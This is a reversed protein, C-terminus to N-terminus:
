AAEKETEGEEVDLPVDPEPTGEQAVPPVPAPAAEQNVPPMPAPALEQNVPPVPEPAIPGIPGSDLEPEALWPNNEDPDTPDWGPYTSDGIKPASPKGLPGPDPSNYIEVAEIEWLHDYIWKADKVQLRICGHSAAQGLKDFEGPQLSGHDYWELYPVSHFLYDGDIQTSYMGKVGDVLGLWKWRNGTLEYKGLPTSGDLGSSCVMAIYPVTHEGNEDLTYVTVTNMECNVKVYYPAPTPEPEPEPAPAPTPEPEPEPKQTPAPETWPEPEPEPAPEPEPEPKPLPKEAPKAHQGVPLEPTVDKEKEAPTSMKPGCSCLLAMALLMGILKKTQKKRM